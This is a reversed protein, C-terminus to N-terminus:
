GRVRPRMALRMIQQEQPRMAPQQVQRMPAPPQTTNSQPQGQGRRLGSMAFPLFQRIPAPLNGGIFSTAASLPDFKGGNILMGTGARGLWNGVQSGFGGFGTGMAGSLVGGAAGGIIMPVAIQTIKGMTDLFNQPQKTNAHPTIRGWNPDNIMANPNNFGSSGRDANRWLAPDRYEEPVTSPVQLGPMNKWNYMYSAQGNGDTYPTIYGKNIYEQYKPDKTPDYGGDLFQAFEAAM